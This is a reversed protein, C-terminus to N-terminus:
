LMQILDIYDGNQPCLFLFWSSVRGEPLVNWKSIDSFASIVFYRDEHKQSETCLKGCTNQSYM